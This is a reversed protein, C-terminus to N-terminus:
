IDAVARHARDLVGALDDISGEFLESPRFQHKSKLADIAPEPQLYDGAVHIRIVEGSNPLRSMTFESCPFSHPAPLSNFVEDGLDDPPVPADYIDPACLWQGQLFLVVQEGIDMALNPGTNWVMAVEVVRPDKVHIDQVLQNSRDMRALRLLRREYSIFSFMLSIYIAAAVSWGIWQGCQAVEASVFAGVWNGLGGFLWATGAASLTLCGYSAVNTNALGAITKLEDATPRRTTITHM